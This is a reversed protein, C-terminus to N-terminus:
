LRGIRPRFPRRQAVVHRHGQRQILDIAQAHRQRARAAGDQGCGEHCGLDRAARAALEQGADHRAVLDHFAQSRIEHRGDQCAAEMGARLLTAHIAMEDFLDMQQESDVPFLSRCRM